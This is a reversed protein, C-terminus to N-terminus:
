AKRGAGYWMRFAQGTTLDTADVWATQQSKPTGKVIRMTNGHVQIPTRTEDATVWGGTRKEQQAFVDTVKGDDDTVKIEQPATYDKMNVTSPDNGKAIMLDAAASEQATANPNAEHWARRMALKAVREDMDNELKLQRDSLLAAQQGNAKVYATVGTMGEQELVQALAPNKFAAALTKIQAEGARADTAYKAIAAKYAEQEYRILKEANASHVKWEEFARQAAAYDQRHVSDMVAGASTIASTLPHRTLLGGLAALWM